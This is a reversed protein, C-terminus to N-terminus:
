VSIELKELLIKIEELTRNQHEFKQALGLLKEYHQLKKTTRHLMDAVAQPSIDVSKAIEALSCDDFYYMTFIERQRQTLLAAYFDFLLNIKERAEPLDM